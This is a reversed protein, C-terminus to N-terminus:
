LGTPGFHTPLNTVGFRAACKAVWRDTRAEDTRRILERRERVITQAAWVATAHAVEFEPTEIAALAEHAAMADTFDLAAIAAHGANYAAQMPGFERFAYDIMHTPSDIMNRAAYLSIEPLAKTIM